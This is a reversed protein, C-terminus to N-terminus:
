PYTSSPVSRRQLDAKASNDHCVGIALIILRVYNATNGNSNAMKANSNAMVLQWYKGYSIALKQWFYNNALKAM